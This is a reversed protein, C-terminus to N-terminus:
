EFKENLQTTPENAFDWEKLVNWTLGALETAAPVEV